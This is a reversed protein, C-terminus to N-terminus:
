TMPQHSILLTTEPTIESPPLTTHESLVVLLAKWLYASSPNAGEAILRGANIGAVQRSLEALTLEQPIKGNDIRFLILGSMILTAPVPWFPRLAPFIMCFLSLCGAILAFLGLASCLGLAPKPMGLHAFAELNNIFRKAKLSTMDQVKTEPKLTKKNVGMAVLAARLRYFAMALACKKTPANNAFRSQLLAYIDGVTRLGTAESDSIHIIFAKEIAMLMEVDDLDGDLGITNSAM